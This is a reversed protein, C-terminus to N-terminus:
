IIVWIGFLFEQQKIEVFGQNVCNTRFLGIFDVEFELARIEIEIDARMAVLEQFAHAFVVCDIDESGGSITVSFGDDVVEVSVGLCDM